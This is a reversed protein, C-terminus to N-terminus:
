LEAVVEEYRTPAAAVDAGFVPELLKGRHPPGGAMALDCFTTWIEDWAVQGYRDYKLGASGMSTPPVDSYCHQYRPPLFSNLKADLAALREAVNSDRTMEM